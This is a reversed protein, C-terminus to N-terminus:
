PEPTPLPLPKPYSGPEEGVPWSMAVVSREIDKKTAWSPFLNYFDEPM